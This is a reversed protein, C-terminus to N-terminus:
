AGGRATATVTQGVIALDEVEEQAAEVMKWGGGGGTGLGTKRTQANWNGSSGIKGAPPVIGLERSPRISAAAM